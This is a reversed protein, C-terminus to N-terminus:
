SAARCGTPGGFRKGIWLAGANDTFLGSIDQDIVEGSAASMFLTFRVGDFTYLGTSTGLWLFGDPTQAIAAIDGPAGDRTTWARHDMDALAQVADAAPAGFAM